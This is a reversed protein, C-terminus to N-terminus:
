EGRHSDLSFQVVNAPQGALFEQWAPPNKAPLFGIKDPRREGYVTIIIAGGSKHGIRLANEADTIGESRLVNV